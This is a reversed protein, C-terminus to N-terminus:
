ESIMVFRADFPDLTVNESSSLRVVKTRDEHNALFLMSGRIVCEVGPQPEALLPRVDADACWREVLEDFLGEDPQTAIYWASAGVSRRTIAPWGRAFGDAFISIVDADKLRVLEQWSLGSGCLSGDLFTSTDDTAMPAFEEVWVGLANQLSGPGGLYGPATIRLEPTVIGTQCGVVLTTGKAPLSGIADISESSVVHLAPVVLLRYKDLQEHGAPVFDITVGRRLFAAYYSLVIGLYDTRAPLSDQRLSWWSDWDFVIAVEAPVSKSCLDSLGAIEAGLESVDRFVRSDSGAHPLMASHFKESGAVSQRWQFYCIADAGRAVAQLSHLRNMAQPKPVNRVRWNVASAAQEMLFWPAGGGLSRMLDRTAALQVYSNPDAPDPYADDSVFDVDRIWEWYDVDPFFGMFNTTVPVGPSLERLIELEMRYLQLLSHSSFRDFDLLQTPNTFTPTLSPVSILEFSEYRQSWFATGWAQNLRDISVYRDALWNQFARESAADYSRSIHCGYENGIHWAQLAPHLGYRQAMKRVLRQAYERYASSNPSYQQRSGFGLKHGERTLPLSEPHMKALWSPPSATATALVVSIGGAHLRDLVDDLWGFDFENPRPELQAWAFVGVTVSTVGAQKMLKIDEDWVERPWQEPNYDGGFSIRGPIM